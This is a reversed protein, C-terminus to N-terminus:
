RAHLFFAHQAPITKIFRYVITRLPQLDALFLSNHAGIHSMVLAHNEEGQLVIQLTTAHHFTNVTVYGDLTNVQEQLLLNRRSGSNIGQHLCM